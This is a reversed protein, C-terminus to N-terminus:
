IIVMGEPNSLQRECAQMSALSQVASYLTFDNDLPFFVILICCKTKLILDYARCEFCIIPLMIAFERYRLKQYLALNM